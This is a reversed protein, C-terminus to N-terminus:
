SRLASGFGRYLAGKNLEERAGLVAKRARRLFHAVHRIARDDNISETPLSTHHTAVDSVIHRSM